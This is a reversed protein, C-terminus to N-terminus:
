SRPARVGLEVRADVVQEGAGGPAAAEALAHALLREVRLEVAGLGVGVADGDLHHRRM